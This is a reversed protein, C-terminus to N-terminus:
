SNRDIKQLFRAVCSFHDTTETESGCDCMPSPADRFNPRFTHENLHSFKLRLRSFFKVGGPDHIAFLSRQKM